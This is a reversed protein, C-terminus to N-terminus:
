DHRAQPRVDDDTAAGALHGADHQQVPRSGSRVAALDLLPLLLDQAAGQRLQRAGDTDEQARHVVVLFAVQPRALMGVHLHQAHLPDVRVPHRGQEERVPSVLAVGPPPM